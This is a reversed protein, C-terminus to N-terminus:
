RGIGIQAPRTREVPGNGVVTLMEDDLIQVPTESLTLGRGFYM